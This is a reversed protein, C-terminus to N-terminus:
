RKIGKSRNGMELMRKSSTVKMELAGAVVQNDSVSSHKGLDIAM